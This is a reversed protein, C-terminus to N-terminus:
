PPRVSSRQRDDAERGQRLAPRPPGAGQVLRGAPGRRDQALAAEPKGENRAIRRSRRASRPWRPRPSRTAPSTARAPSPSTPPSTTPSSTRHRRRARGGSRQGGSRGAPAPLLRGGRRPAGRDPRGQGVSINEKLTVKLRELEDAREDIASEGESPWWIPWRPSWPWSSTPSPWSTPRPACSSSPLPTAPAGSPSRARRHRAIPASPRAPWARSASGRRGGQGHGRREGRPWAEADLMGVGTLQRLRQVDKASFAAM